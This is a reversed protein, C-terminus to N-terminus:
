SDDWFFNGNEIIEYISTVIRQRADLHDVFVSQDAFAHFMCNGPLKTCRM